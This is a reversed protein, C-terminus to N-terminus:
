QYFPTSDYSGDFWVTHVRRVRQGMQKGRKIVQKGGEREPVNAATM